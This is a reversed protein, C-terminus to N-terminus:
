QSSSSKKVNQSVKYAKDYAEIVQTTLDIPKKVYVLGSSQTEFVVDISRKKAIDEVLKAAKSAIQQTVQQEKRKIEAKAQLDFKQFAIVKEEFEKQKRMRADQSLLSQQTEFNSKLKDLEEKKARMEQEKEQIDQQLRARAQKGEGIQLIVRQMDVIGYAAAQASSSHLMLMGQLFVLTLALRATNTLKM